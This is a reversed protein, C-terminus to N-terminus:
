GRNLLMEVHPIGDEEYVESRAVFGFNEYFAQLYCQASIRMSAYGADGSTEELLYRILLRGIGQGRHSHAVAVRGFSAEGYHGGPQLLRLSALATVPIRTNPNQWLVLHRATADLGDADLYPCRQEVVFVEQRLQMLAYLEINSFEEFRYWHWNERNANIM